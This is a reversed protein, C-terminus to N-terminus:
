QSHAGVSLLSVSVIVALLGRSDLAQVARVEYSATCIMGMGGVAMPKGQLRGPDCLIEVAAYFADM